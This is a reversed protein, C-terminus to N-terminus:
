QRPWSVDLFEDHMRQQFDDVLRQRFQDFTEVLGLQLAQEGQQVLYSTFDAENIVGYTVATDRVLAQVVALQAETLV